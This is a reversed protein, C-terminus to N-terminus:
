IRQMRKQMALSPQAELAVLYTNTHENKKHIEYQIKCHDSSTFINLIERFCNGKVALDSVFTVYM